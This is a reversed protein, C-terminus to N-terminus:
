VTKYLVKCGQLPIREGSLTDAIWVVSAHSLRALTHAPCPGQHAAVCGEGMYAHYSRVFIQLSISIYSLHCTTRM